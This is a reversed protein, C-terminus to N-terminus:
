RIWIEIQRGDAATPRGRIKKGWSEGAKNGDEVRLSALWDNGGFLARSTSTDFIGDEFLDLDSM